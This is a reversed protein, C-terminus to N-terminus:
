AGRNEVPEITIKVEGDLWMELLRSIIFSLSAEGAQKQARKWLPTSVYVSKQKQDKDEM